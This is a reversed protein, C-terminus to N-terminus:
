NEVEFDSRWGIEIEGEFIIIIDEWIFYEFVFIGEFVFDLYVEGEFSLKDSKWYYVKNILVVIEGFLIILILGYM